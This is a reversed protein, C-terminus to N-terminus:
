KKFYKSYKKSKIDKSCMDIDKYSDISHWLVNKFKITNLSNKKVLKPFVISELSGKEPLIKSLNTDLHYIGPNMWINKVVSKENFQITKNNKIKMTGYKTRLEIAAISNPKTQIKKLDINTIIDGNIVIFSKDSIKKIAKKIAGGTGLANKEISYDIKCNLNNKKNLHNEIQKSRYGTCLIIETIGFKKLYKISWEILPIGNIKILPKPITDTLPRLRKGRGGSLIMAKM